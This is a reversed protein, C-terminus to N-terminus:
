MQRHTEYSSHCNQVHIDFIVQMIKQGSVKVYADFAAFLPCTMIEKLAYM